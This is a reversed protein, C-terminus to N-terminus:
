PPLWQQDFIDINCESGYGLFHVQRLSASLTSWCGMREPMGKGNSRQPVAWIAPIVDGLM